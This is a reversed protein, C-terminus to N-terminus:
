VVFCLRYHLRLDCKNPVYWLPSGTKDERLKGVEEMSSTDTGKVHVVELINRTGLMKTKLGRKFPPGDSETNQYLHISNRKHLPPTKIDYLEVISPLLFTVGTRFPKNQSVLM